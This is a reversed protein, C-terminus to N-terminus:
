WLDGLEIRMLEDIVGVTCAWVLIATVGQSVNWRHYVGRRNM